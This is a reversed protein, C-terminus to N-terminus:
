EFLRPDFPGAAAAVPAAEAEASPAPSPRELVLCARGDLAANSRVAGLCTALPRATTPYLLKKLKPRGVGACANPYPYPLPLSGTPARAPRGCARCREAPTTAGVGCRGRPMTRAPQGHGRLATRIYTGQM